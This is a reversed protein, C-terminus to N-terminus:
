STPGRQQWLLRLGRLTLDPVVRSVTECHPAVIAAFGGTAVAQLEAGRERRMRGVLGDVLGAHGLVLGSQMAATTDLGVASPPASLEIGPLRESAEVLAKMSVGLGPAIAGGAFMGDAGAVDVTTATGMDVAICASGLLAHAAACNAVRDPGVPDAKLVLPEHGLLSTLERRYAADLDDGPTAVVAASVPALAAMEALEAKAAARRDTPVRREGVLTDGDFVAVVTDTNGADVVM